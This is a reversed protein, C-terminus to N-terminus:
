LHLGCETKGTGAWRGSRADEGPQVPLTCPWCGVSPYGRETLPNVPLDHGVIRGTVDLDSWAVIPNVKVLGRRDREVVKADARSPSDARRLGSIWASKGALARELPEVKRLACCGQLDRMWDDERGVLPTVVRLNLDLLDRVRDRFWLTEAFHFQTDIFVIEIGPAAEQAVSPMVADEFSSLVVVNDLGFRDVAWAVAAGAPGGELADNAADLEQDSLLDLTTSM